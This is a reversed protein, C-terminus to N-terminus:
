GGIQDAVYDIVAQMQRVADPLIRDAPRDVFGSRVRQDFWWNRDGYLPHRLRGRNLAPVDRRQRRGDGYVRVVVGATHRTEKVATRFRLSRSLTPGYGSPMARVAEAKVAPRLPSAADRLAKGMQKGLGTDGIARLRNQVDRLQAGGTIKVEFAM